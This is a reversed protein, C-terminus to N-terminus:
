INYIGEITPASDTSIGSYYPTHSNYLTHSDYIKYVFTANKIQISKNEPSDQLAYIVMKDPEIYPMPQIVVASITPAEGYDIVAKYTIFSIYDAISFSDSNYRSAIFQRTADDSVGVTDVIKRGLTSVKDLFDSIGVEDTIFRSFYFGATNFDSIGVSDALARQLTLSRSIIDSLGVNESIHAFFNVSRNLDDEIGINDTNFINWTLSRLLSDSIGISDEHSRYNQSQKEIRNTDLGEYTSYDDYMSFNNYIKTLGDLIGVVDSVTAFIDSM